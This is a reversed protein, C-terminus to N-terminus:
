WCPHPQGLPTGRFVVLGDKVPVHSRITGGRLIQLRGARGAPSFARPCTDLGLSSLSPPILLRDRHIAARTKNPTVIAIAWCKPHSGLAGGSSAGPILHHTSPRSAINPDSTTIFTADGVPVAVLQLTRKALFAAQIERARPRGVFVADLSDPLDTRTGDATGAIRLCLPPLM